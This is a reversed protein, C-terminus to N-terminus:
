VRVNSMEKFCVDREERAIARITRRITCYLQFPKCCLVQDPNSKTGM